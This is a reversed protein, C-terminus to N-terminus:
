GWPRNKDNHGKIVGVKFALSGIILTLPVLDRWQLGDELLNMVHIAYEM